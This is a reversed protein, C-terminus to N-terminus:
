AKGHFKEMYFNWPFTRHFFEMYFNFNWIFTGYLFPHFLNSFVQFPTREDAEDMKLLLVKRKKDYDVIIM